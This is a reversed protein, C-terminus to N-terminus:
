RKTLQMTPLIKQISKVLFFELPPNTNLLPIHQNPMSRAERERRSLSPHIGGDQYFQASNDPVFFAYQHSKSGSAGPVPTLDLPVPPTSGPSGRHQVRNPKGEDGVPWIM